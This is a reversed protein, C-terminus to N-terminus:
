EILAEKLSKNDHKGALIRLSITHSVLKWEANIFHVTIAMIIRFKPM